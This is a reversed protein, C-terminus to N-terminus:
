LLTSRGGAHLPQGRRDYGEDPRLRLWNVQLSPIRNQSRGKRTGEQTVIYGDYLSLLGARHNRLLQSPVRDRRRLRPM